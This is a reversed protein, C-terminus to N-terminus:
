RNELVSQHAFTRRNKKAKSGKEPEPCLGCVDKAKLMKRISVRPPLDGKAIRKSTPVPQLAKGTLPTDANSTEGYFQTLSISSNDINSWSQEAQLLIYAAFTEFEQKSEVRVLDYVSQFEERKTRTLCRFNNIKHKYYKKLFLKDIM